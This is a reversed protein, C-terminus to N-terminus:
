LISNKWSDFLFFQFRYLEATLFAYRTACKWFQEEQIMSIFVESSFFIRKTIIKIWFHILELSSKFRVVTTLFRIKKICTFFTTFSRQFEHASNLAARLFCLRFKASNCILLSHCKEPLGGGCFGSCKEATEAFFFANKAKPQKRKCVKGRTCMCM